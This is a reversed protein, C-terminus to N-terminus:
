RFSEAAHGTAKAATAGPPSVNGCAMVAVDEVGTTALAQQHLPQRRYRVADDADIGVGGCDLPGLASMFGDPTFVARALTNSHTAATSASTGTPVNQACDTDM